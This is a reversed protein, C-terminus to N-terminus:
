MNWEHTPVYDLTGCSRNKAMVGPTEKDFAVPYYHHYRGSMYAGTRGFGSHLSPVHYDCLSFLWVEAVAARFARQVEAPDTDRKKRTHKVTTGLSTLLKPGFAEAALRRLRVSDSILYWVVRHEPYRRRSAELQTACDFFAAYFAVTADDEGTTFVKDGVRIQIGIKLTDPNSLAALEAAYPKLTEPRVRFLYDMACAFATSPNVGM